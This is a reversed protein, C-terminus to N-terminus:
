GHKKEKKRKPKSSKISSQSEDRSRRPTKDIAADVRGGKKELTEVCEELVAIRHLLSHEQPLEIENIQDVLKRAKKPKKQWVAVFGLNIKLSAVDLRYTWPDDLSVFAELTEELEFKAADIVSKAELEELDEAEELLILQLNAVNRLTIPNNEGFEAKYTQLALKAFYKAQPLDEEIKYVRALCNWIEAKLLNVSKGKGDSRSLDELVDELTSMAEGTQGAELHAMAISKKTHTHTSIDDKEALDLSKEFYGLAEETNGDSVALNGLTLYINGKVDDAMPSRNEAIKHLIDRAEEV